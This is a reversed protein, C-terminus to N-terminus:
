TALHTGFISRYNLIVAAVTVPSNIVLFVITAPLHQRILKTKRLLLIVGTCFVVVSILFASVLNAFNEDYPLFQAYFIQRWIVATLIILTLVYVSRKV